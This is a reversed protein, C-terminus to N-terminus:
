NIIKLLEDIKNHISFNWRIYRCGTLAINMGEDTGLYKKYYNADPVIKHFKDLKIPVYHVFPQLGLEQLVPNPEFFGLTGCALIELIKALPFNLPYTAFGFFAGQYSNLIKYYEFDKNKNSVRSRSPYELVDILKGFDTKDKNIEHYKKLQVRIPYFDYFSGSLIIKRKKKKFTKIILHPYLQHNFGYYFQITKDIYPSNINQFYRKSPTLIIDAKDLRHDRVPINYSKKQLRNFEHLDDHWIIIKIQKSKLIEYNKQIFFRDFGDFKIGILFCKDFMNTEQVKKIFNNFAIDEEKSFDKTQLNRQLNKIKSLSNQNEIFDTPFYVTYGKSNIKDKMIYFMKAVMNVSYSISFREKLPHFLVIKGNM